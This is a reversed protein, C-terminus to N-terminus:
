GRDSAATVRKRAAIDLGFAPQEPGGSSQADFRETRDRGAGKARYLAIDAAQLLEQATDPAEVAALGASLRVAPVGRSRAEAVVERVRDALRAAGEAETSPMLM